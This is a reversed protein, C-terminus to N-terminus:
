NCVASDISSDKRRKSLTEWPYVRHQPSIEFYRLLLAKHSELEEFTCSM